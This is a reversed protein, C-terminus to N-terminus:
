IGSLTFLINALFCLILGSATPIIFSLLTYKRSKTEKYVTMLTTACPWHMMTFICTCVATKLTWGNSVFIYKLQEVSQFQELRGSCLYSMMIIPIVIENAPLGLIFALLIVGDLGFVKAFPDLFGSIHSLLSADGASLNALLWILVSCPAAFIVARLLVKATKDIISRFIVNGIQPIRYPPLELIFSSEKGNLTTLSIIKSVIMSVFISIAIMIAVLISASLQNNSFFMAGIVILIPFRGNCPVFSNTLIATLKERDSGIIRCGSVGVANCGFGMCMTLAQKGCGGCKQFPKDLNFAIRPLYGSDELITFLPFFIAMPPLMVSVVWTVVRYVGFVILETIKGPIPLLSLFTILKPEFMSFLKSLCESPYNALSVTIFLVLCLLLCMIPYATLKNTLIKDARGSYSGENKSVVANQAIARATDAIRNSIIESYNQSSNVKYNSYKDNIDTGYAAFCASIFSDDHCLFKIAAARKSIPFDIDKILNEISKIENETNEDFTLSRPYSNNEKLMKGIALKLDSIGKKKKSSICVVPINLAKQIFNADITKESKKLEDIMNICLIINSCFQCLQLFMLLNREIATASCVYITIDPKCFLLFDRSITEEESIPNISYAGPLDALMVKTGEIETYGIASGVTKGAWNGTHQHLGTLINFLSSKGVNPNGALAISPYAADKKCSISSNLM